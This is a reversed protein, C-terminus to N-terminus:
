PPCSASIPCVSFRISYWPRGSCVASWNGRLFASYAASMGKVLKPRSDLHNMMLGKNHVKRYIGKGKWIRREEGDRVNEETYKKIGLDCGAVFAGTLISLIEM